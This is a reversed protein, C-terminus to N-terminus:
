SLRESPDGRDPRALGSCGRDCPGMPYELGFRLLCSCHPQPRERNSALASRTSTECRRRFSISPKVRRRRDLAEKEVVRKLVLPWSGVGTTWTGDIVALNTGIRGAFTRGIQRVELGLSSDSRTVVDVPMEMVGEDPSSLTAGLGDETNAIHFVAKLKMLRTDLMGMWYGDIDSPTAQRHEAKAPASTRKFDLPMPRGQSWTGEILTGDPRVNGEYSGHVVDVSFTLKSDKLSISSIPIGNAAQDPSDMSANLGDGGNAIHLVIRLEVTGAKLTGLWDGAIDQAQIASGSVTAIAAMM